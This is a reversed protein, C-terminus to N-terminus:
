FSHNRQSTAPAQSHHHAGMVKSRLLSERETETMSVYVCLRERERKGSVCVGKFEVAYPYNKTFKHIPVLISIGGFENHWNGEWTPVNATLNQCRSIHLCHRLKVPVLAHLVFYRTDNNKRQPLSRSLCDCVCVVCVFQGECKPTHMSALTHHLHPCIEYRQEM